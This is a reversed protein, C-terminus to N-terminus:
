RVLYSKDEYVHEVESRSLNSQMFDGNFGEQVEFPFYKQLKELDGIDFSLEPLEIRNIKTILCINGDYQFVKAKSCDVGALIMRYVLLGPNFLNVHGSVIFPKRPPVAVAIYGEDKILSVAKVLFAQVDLQHELVHSIWLFDYKESFELKNFDGSIFNRVRSLTVAEANLYPSKEYDNVDVIKGHDVFYSAALLNGAGVDLVSEFSFEKLAIDALKKARFAEQAWRGLKGSVDQELTGLYPKTNVVSSSVYPLNYPVSSKKEFLDDLMRKESDTREM